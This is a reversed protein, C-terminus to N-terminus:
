PKRWVEDFPRPEDPLHNELIAIEGEFANSFLHRLGEGTVVLRDAEAMLTEYAQWILPSGWVDAVPTSPPSAYFNDNYEALTSRGAARRKRLVPVLDYDGCQYLVLLDAHEAWEFREHARADLNIVRWGPRQAALDRAPWRMRYYSDGTEDIHVLQVITREDTRSNASMFNEPGM